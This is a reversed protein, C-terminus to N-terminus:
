KKGTKKYDRKREQVNRMIQQQQELTILTNLGAVRKAVRGEFPTNNCAQNMEIRKKYKYEEQKDRELYIFFKIQMPEDFQDFMNYLINSYILRQSSDVVINHDYISQIALIQASKVSCSDHMCLTCFGVVCFSM